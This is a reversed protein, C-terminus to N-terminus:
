PDMEFLLATVTVHTTGRTRPRAAAEHLRVAATALADRFALWEEEGVWLEADVTLEPGSPARQGHRRRLEELMATLMLEHSEPEAPATSSGTESASCEDASYRYRRERGGRNAVEEVLHVAGADVLFRLHYSALAQSIELERGLEAASMPAGTLLSLMRLRLPHARARLAARRDAEELSVNPVKGLGVGVPLPINPPPGSRGSSAAYARRINDEDTNSLRPVQGKGVDIVEKQHRRRGRGPREPRPLARLPAAAEAAAVSGRDSRDRRGLSSAGHTVGSRAPRVRFCV